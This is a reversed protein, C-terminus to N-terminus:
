LDDNEEVQVIVRRRQSTKENEEKVKSLNDIVDLFLKKKKEDLPKRLWRYITMEHVQFADAIEWIYINHRKAYERVDKNPM